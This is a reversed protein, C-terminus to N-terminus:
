DGRVLCVSLRGDTDISINVCNTFGEYTQAMEGYEYVIVGTKEPDFFTQAAEQMTYGTMWCWLHADAYGCRGNEIVSGDNLILREGTKQGPSESM